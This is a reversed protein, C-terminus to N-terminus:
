GQSVKAICIVCRMFMSLLHFMAINENRVCMTTLTHVYVCLVSAAFMIEDM